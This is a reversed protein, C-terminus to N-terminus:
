WVQKVATEDKGTATVGEKTKTVVALSNSPAGNTKPVRRGM